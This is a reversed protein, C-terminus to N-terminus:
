MLTVWDIHTCCDVCACCSLRLVVSLVVSLGSYAVSIDMWLVRWEEYCLMTPEKSKVNGNPVRHEFIFLSFGFSFLFDPAAHGM